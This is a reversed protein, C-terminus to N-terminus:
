NAITDELWVATVTLGTGSAIEGSTEFPLYKTVNGGSISITDGLPPTTQAGADGLARIWYYTLSNVSTTVWDGPATFTVAGSPNKFNDTGDVVTLATWAGNWYEWTLTYAGVGQTGIIFNARAFQTLGGVYIGDDVAGGPCLPVDGMGTGDRADDTETTLVGGDSSVAAAVTGSSRVRITVGQPTTGTFSGTAEGASNAAQNFVEIGAGLPGTVGDAEMYCQAGETVGNIEIPVSVNVTTTSGSSNRVSPGNGGTVNIIVDGGTSNYFAAHASCIQHNENSGTSIAITNGSAGLLASARTRHLSISNATVEEVYYLGGSTLGTIATGVTGTIHDSAVYYVPDGDVFGHATIDIEDNADDVDTSPNFPVLAPGYDTFVVDTLDATNQAVTGDTTVRM